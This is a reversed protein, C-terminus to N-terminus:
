GRNNLKVGFHARRLDAAESGMGLISAAVGLDLDAEYARGAKSNYESALVGMISKKFFAGIVGRIGAAIEKRLVPVYYEMADGYFNIKYVGTSSNKSDGSPAPGRQGGKGNKPTFIRYLSDGSKESITKSTLSSENGLSLFLGIQDKDKISMRVTPIQEGFADLLTRGTGTGIFYSRGKTIEKSTRSSKLTYKSAQWSPSYTFAKTTSIDSNIKKGIEIIKTRIQKALFAQFLLQARTSEPNYTIGVRTAM